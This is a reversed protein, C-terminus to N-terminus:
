FLDLPMMEDDAPPEEKKEEVKKEEKGKKDDKGGKKDDKAGAGKKDDKGGKKEEAPADGSGEGSGGGAAFEEARKFMTDTSKALGCINKFANAMTHPLSAKCTIGLRLALCAVNQIGKLAKEELHKNTIRMIEEGFVKGNMYIKKVQVQHKYPKINFKKMLNIESM